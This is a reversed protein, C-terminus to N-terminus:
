EKLRIEKIEPVDKKISEEVGAKLTMNNMECKKCSGLFEVIAVNNEIKILRVDGGDAELFPRIKNLAENVRKQLTTESITQKGSISAM